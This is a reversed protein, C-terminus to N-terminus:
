TNIPNPKMDTRCDNCIHVMNAGPMGENFGCFSCPIEGFQNVELRRERLQEAFDAVVEFAHRRKM